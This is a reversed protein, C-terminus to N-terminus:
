PRDSIDDATGINHVATSALFMECTQPPIYV